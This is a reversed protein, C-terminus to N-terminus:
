SPLHVVRAACVLVRAGLDALRAIAPESDDLKCPWLASAMLGFHSQSVVKLGASGHYWGVTSLMGAQSGKYLVLLGARPLRPAEAAIVVDELGSVRVRHIKTVALAIACLDLIMARGAEDADPWTEALLKNCLDRALAELEEPHTTLRSIAPQVRADARIGRVQDIMALTAKGINPAQVVYHNTQRM